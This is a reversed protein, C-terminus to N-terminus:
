HRPQYGYVISSQSNQQHTLRNSTRSANSTPSRYNSQRNSRRHHNKSSNISYRSETLSCRAVGETLGNSSSRTLQSWGFNQRFIFYSDIELQIFFFLIKMDINM